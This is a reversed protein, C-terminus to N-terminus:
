LLTRCFYLTSKIEIICHLSDPKLQSHCELVFCDSSNCWKLGNQQKFYKIMWTIALASKKSAFLIEDQRKVSMDSSAGFDVACLEDSLFHLSLQLLTQTFFFLFLLKFSCHKLLKKQHQWNLHQAETTLRRAVSCGQCPMLLNSPASIIVFLFYQTGIGISFVVCDGKLPRENIFSM